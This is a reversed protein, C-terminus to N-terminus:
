GLTREITWYLGTLAIAASAPIVVRSRYWPRDKFWYGVTLYALAIVALQGLEVGVNFSLLGTLFESRPLGVEQLVGAFGMGHLLGFGFVVVPRWAHLRPTIINEVAVYVISAAILPEVIAPSLSVLGYVSLALTITHAVTFATVQILLPRWHLSLLFLGLVFLIHDVGLPLIHTFGLGIYQGIIALRTPRAIGVGIVYADSKRGDKLWLAVREGSGVAPLRVISQGFEAAYAWRFAHAGKPVPGCLGLTSLRARAQDGVPPIRLDCVEPESRAGDFELTIGKLYVPLHKRVEVELAAPALARLGNYRQANPSENTDAHAPGIGALVAELNVNLVVRYSGDDAFTVDAIAPRIEHAGAAPVLVFLLVVAAARWRISHFWANMPEPFEQTTPNPLGSNDQV